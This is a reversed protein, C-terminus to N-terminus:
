TGYEFNADIIDVDFEYENDMLENDDDILDTQNYSLPEATEQTLVERLDPEIQSLRKIFDQGM